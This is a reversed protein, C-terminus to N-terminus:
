HEKKWDKIHNYLFNAAEKVAGSMTLGLIMAIDTLQDKTHQDLSLCTRKFNQM